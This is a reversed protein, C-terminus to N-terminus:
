CSVEALFALQSDVVDVYLEFVLVVVEPCNQYVSLLAVCNSLVPILYNFLTKANHLNTALAAGRFSELLCQMQSRIPEKQSSKTFDPQHCIGLFHSQLTQLLQLSVITNLSWNRVLALTVVSM